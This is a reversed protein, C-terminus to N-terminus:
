DGAEAAMPGPRNTPRTSAFLLWIYHIIEFSMGVGFIWWLTTLQISRAVTYTVLVAATALELHFTQIVEGRRKERLARYAIVRWPLAAASFILLMLPVLSVNRLQAIALTFVSMCWVTILAAIYVLAVVALAPGLARQKEKLKAATAALGLGPLLVVPIVYPAVFWIAVPVLLAWWHGLAALWITGVPLALWGFSNLALYLVGVAIGAKRLAGNPPM